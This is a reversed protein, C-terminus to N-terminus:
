KLSGERHNFSTLPADLKLSRTTPLRDFQVIYLREELDVRVIRGSGFTSHGVRDNVALLREPPPRHKKTKATKSVLSDPVPHVYDLLDQGIEELFRSPTKHQGELTKGSSDSLYLGDIARTMAVYALRREEELAELDHSRHSPLVGESLGILFVQSFELGKAAHITMLKIAEKPRERDLDTFLATRALFDELTAEQDQAYEQLFRKLSALNDLREQEGQLRLYSEYGSFDLISQLLNDLSLEPRARRCYEIASVYQKATTKQFIESDLNIKLAEYLTLGKKEAFERLFDRSRQGIYRKPTNHTRIFALDDGYAVMRLYCIVDKIERRRYFEIGSYIQYPLKKTTLREEIDRTVYSHARYLIAVENLSVGKDRLKEIEQCIWENELHDTKAHCYVPKPGDPRNAKLARQIRLTNREILKDAVATIQPTSRYNLSLDITVADPYIKPFDLFLRVHAGRWTYITQDPDGVIFINGHHGALLRALQYQRASVDQFEDVM